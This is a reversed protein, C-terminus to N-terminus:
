YTTFLFGLSVIGNLLIWDIVSYHEYRHGIRPGKVKHSPFASEIGRECQPPVSDPRFYRIPYLGYLISLYDCKFLKECYNM